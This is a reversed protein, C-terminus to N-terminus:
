TRNSLFRAPLVYKTNGNVDVAPYPICGNIVDLYPQYAEYVDAEIGSPVAEPLGVILDTAITGQRQLAIAEVAVSLALFRVFISLVAM